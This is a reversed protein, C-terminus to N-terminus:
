VHWVYILQGWNLWGVVGVVVAPVALLGPSRRLTWALVSAAIQKVVMAPVLGLAGILLGMVPALERGGGKLILWTGVGDVLNVLVFVIPWVGLHAKMRLLRSADVVTLLSTRVPIEVPTAM